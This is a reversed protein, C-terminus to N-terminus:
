AIRRIKHCIFFFLKKTAYEHLLSLKEYKRIKKVIKKQKYEWAWLNLM